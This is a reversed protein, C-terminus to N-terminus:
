PAVNHRITAHFRDSPSCVAAGHVMHVGPLAQRNNAQYLLGDALRLELCLDTADTRREVAREQLAEGHTRQRNLYM